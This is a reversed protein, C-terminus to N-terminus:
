LADLNQLATVRPDLDRDNALHDLDDAAVLVLVERPFRPAEAAVDHQGRARPVRVLQLREHHELEEGVASQALSALGWISLNGSSSFPRNQRNNRSVIIM